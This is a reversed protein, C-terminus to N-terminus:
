LLVIFARCLITQVCWRTINLPLILTADVNERRAFNVKTFTWIRTQPDQDIFDAIVNRTHTYGITFIMKGIANVLEVSNTYEPKLDPNGKEQSYRDIPIVFPILAKYAPRHIRSTYSLTVNYKGTIKRSVQISPFLDLYSTHLGTSNLRANTQEARLGAQVRTTNIQRTLLLYGAFINEKYATETPAPEQPLGNVQESASRNRSQTFVDKLGSGLTLGPKIILTYDAQATTIDIDAKTSNFSSAYGYPVGPSSSVITTHVTQRTFSNFHTHNLDFVLEDGKSNLKNKSYLDYSTYNADNAPRSESTLVSDAEGVNNKFFSIANARNDSGSFLGDASFGIINSPTLTYDFGLKGTAAKAQRFLETPMELTQQQANGADLRRAIIEYKYAKSTRGNLNGYVNIKGSRYNLSIGSNYKGYRSEAASINITGNFGRAAGKKTIINIIGSAACILPHFPHIQQKYPDLRTQRYPEHYTCNNLLQQFATLGFIFFAQTILGKLM